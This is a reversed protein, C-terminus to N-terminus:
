WKFFENVRIQNKKRKKWKSSIYILTSAVLYLAQQWHTGTGNIARMLQAGFLIYKDDCFKHWM